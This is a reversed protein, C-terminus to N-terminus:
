PLALLLSRPCMKGLILTQLDMQWVPCKTKRARETQWVPSTWGTELPEGLKFTRPGSLFINMKQCPRAPNKKKGWSCSSNTQSHCRTWNCPHVTHEPPETGRRWEREMSCVQRGRAVGGGGKGRGGEERVRERLRRHPEEPFSGPGKPLSTTKGFTTVKDSPCASAAEEEMEEGTKWRLRQEWGKRGVTSKFSCMGSYNSTLDQLPRVHTRQYQNSCRNELTARPVADGLLKNSLCM